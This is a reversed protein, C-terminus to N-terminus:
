VRDITDMMHDENNPATVEEEGSWVSGVSMKEYDRVWEEDGHVAMCSDDGSDEMSATDPVNEDDGDPPDPVKKGHNRQAEKKTVGDPM